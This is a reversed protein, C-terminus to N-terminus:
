PHVAELLILLMLPKLGSVDKSRLFSCIELTRHSNDSSPWGKPKITGRAQSPDEVTITVARVGFIDEEKKVYFLVDNIYLM